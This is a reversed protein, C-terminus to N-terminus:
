FINRTKEMKVEYLQLSDKDTKTNIPNALEEWKSHATMLVIIIPAIEVIVLVLSM